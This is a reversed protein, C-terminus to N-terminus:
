GAFGAPQIGADMPTGRRSNREWMTVGITSYYWMIAERCAQFQAKTPRKPTKGMVRNMQEFADQVIAPLPTM